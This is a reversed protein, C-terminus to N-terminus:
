FVMRMVMERRSDKVKVGGAHVLEEYVKDIVVQLTNGRM